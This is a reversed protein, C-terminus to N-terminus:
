QTSYLLSMEHTEERAGAPSRGATAHLCSRRSFGVPRTQQGHRSATAPADRRLLRVFSGMWHPQDNWAQASIMNGDAVASEDM